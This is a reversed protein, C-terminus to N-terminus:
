YNDLIHSVWEVRHKRSCLYGKFYFGSDRHNPAIVLRVKKVRPRAEWGTENQTVKTFKLNQKLLGPPSLLFWEYILAWISKLSWRDQFAKSPFSTKRQPHALALSSPHSSASCPVQTLNLSPGTLGMLNWFAALLVFTEDGLVLLWLSNTQKSVALSSM